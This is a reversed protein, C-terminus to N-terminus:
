LQTVLLIANATYDYTDYLEAPINEQPFTFMSIQHKFWSFCMNELKKGSIVAPELGLLSLSASQGSGSCFGFTIGPKSETTIYRDTTSCRWRMGQEDAHHRAWDQGSLGVKGAPLTVM